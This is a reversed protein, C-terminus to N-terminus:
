NKRGLFMHNSLSRNVEDGELITKSGLNQILYYKRGDFMIKMDKRTSNIKEIIKNNKERIENYKNIDLDKFKGGVIKNVERIINIGCNAFDDVQNKVLNIDRIVEMIVKENKYNSGIFDLFDYINVYNLNNDLTHKLNIIKNGNCGGLHFLISNRINDMNECKSLLEELKIDKDVELSIGYKIRCLKFQDKHPNYGVMDFSSLNHVKITDIVDGTVRISEYSNITDYVNKYQTSICKHMSTTIDYVQGLNVTAILFAYDNIHVKGDLSIDKL